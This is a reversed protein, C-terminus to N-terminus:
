PRGSTEPSEDSRGISLSLLGLYAAGVLLVLPWWVFWVFAGLLVFAGLEALDSVREASM